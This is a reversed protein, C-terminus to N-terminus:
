GRLAITQYRRRSRPLEEIHALVTEFLAPFDRRFFRSAPTTGESARCDFHHLATWVKYRHKPLGRHNHQMQSLSGNRGKVASSARPFARAQETAWAQWDALVAPARQQTIPPAEFAAQVTQLAQVIKAKRRPCRTRAAQQQWYGRPLLGEEGWHTWRPTLSVQQMAHWVGQWWFDVLASVGVLQKRVKALAQQNIPLGNTAVFTELADIAAPLQWAVDKSTQRRAEALRGPHVSLAIPELPLRYASRLREWRTVEAEGTDVVAQAQQVAAGSPHSAQGMRLHEHAPRLAQPAHRLRSCMALAYRKVLDHMLHFLDPISLCELGTEARKGLAKARDSVVYLRGVGLTELRAKVVADWTDYTRDAAVAEFLLYGSALDMCVLMMGELCPEDVAGIIKRMEGTAVGEHEGVETTALIAVEVAQIVGRLASPSCGMQTELRRRTFLESITALGVGRKLGFIVLAAVVLRILWRRGAETEWLWSEPHRGRREMARKLRPVSRKSLGTQHALHRISQPAHDCLAHFIRLSKAWLGM